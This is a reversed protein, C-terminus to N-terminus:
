VKHIPEACCFITVPLELLHSSIIVAFLSYGWLTGDRLTILGYQPIYPLTQAVNWIFFLFWPLAIPLALFRVYGGEVMMTALGFLLVLDGIYIGIGEGLPLGIHAGARGLTAYILLLLGLLWLFPQNRRRALSPNQWPRSSNPSWTNM